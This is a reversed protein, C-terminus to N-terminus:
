VQRQKAHPKPAVPPAPPWRLRGDLSLRRLRLVTLADGQGGLCDKVMIVGDQTKYERSDEIRDSTGIARFALKERDSTPMQMTVM